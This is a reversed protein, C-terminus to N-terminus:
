PISNKHNGIIGATIARRRVRTSEALTAYSASRAYAGLRGSNVVMKMVCEWQSVNAAV